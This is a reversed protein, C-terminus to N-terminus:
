PSRPLSRDPRSGRGSDRTRETGAKSSPSPSAHVRRRSSERRRPPPAPPPPVSAKKGGHDAGSRRGQSSRAGCEAPQTHKPKM